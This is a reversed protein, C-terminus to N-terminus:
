FLSFFVSVVKIKRFKEHWQKLTQECAIALSSGVALLLVTSMLAGMLFYLPTTIEPVHLMIDSGAYYSYYTAPPIILLHLKNRIMSISLAFLVIAGGIFGRIAPYHAINIHMMAGIAFILLTCLPLTFVMEKDICVSVVGISLLFVVIAFSHLLIVFGESIGASASGSLQTLFLPVSGTMLIVLFLVIFLRTSM